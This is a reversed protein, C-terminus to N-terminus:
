PALAKSLGDKILQIGGMWLLLMGPILMRELGTSVWWSVDHTIDYSTIYYMLCIMGIFIWGALFTIWRGNRQKIGLFVALLTVIVVGIGWLGWNKFQFLRSFGFTFVYLGENLHLNGELISTLARQGMQSKEFRGTYVATMVLWWFAQYFLMPAALWAWQKWSFRRGKLRTLILIAAIGLWAILAGEPRTWSAALFFLGSLLFAKSTGPAGTTEICQVLLLIAAVLNFTFALNAYAISSHKFILPSTAVLLTCLGAILRHVGMRELQSFVLFLLAVYYGSFALKAAPLMDGFLLNFAAILIPVHLPYPLTNTGWGTVSDLSGTFAIGYGKPAWVLIEDSVSYGKGASIAASVTGLLLFSVAWGEPKIRKFVQPTHRLGGRGYGLRYKYGYLVSTGSLIGTIWVLISQTLLLGAMSVLSAAITFLCLGIGFGLSVKIYFHDQPRLGQVFGTGSAALLLMWLTPLFASRVVQFLSLYRPPPANEAFGLPDFTIVGWREDFLKLDGAQKQIEQGPFDGASVFFTQEHVSINMCGSTPCQALLRPFLFIQMFTAGPLRSGAEPPPWYVTANAPIHQHLFVVFEAFNKGSSFNASRWVTAQGITKVVEVIEGQAMWVFFTAQVVVVAALFFSGLLTFQQTPFGPKRSRRLTILAKWSKLDPM